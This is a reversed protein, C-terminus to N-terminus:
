PSLYIRSWLQNVNAELAKKFADEAKSKEGAGLHGLGMLHYANSVRESDSLDDGFKAFFDVDAGDRKLQEEGTSILSAFLVKASSSDGSKEMAMAKYYLYRDEDTESSVARAFYNEAMVDDGLAEHALGTLYYIQPNRDYAKPREIMQNDPYTDAIMFQELAQQPNGNLLYQRGLLLHADVHLDHIINVGEQRYYTRGDMLEIAGQYDGALILVMVERIVASQLGELHEHNDTLLKLRADIPANSLEMLTDLEAYFRPQTPDKSIATKYANIADDLRAFTQNYGWGLNRHAM